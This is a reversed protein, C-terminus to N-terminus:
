VASGHIREANKGGRFYPLRRSATQSKAQHNESFAKLTEQLVESYNSYHEFISDFDDESEARMCRTEFSKKPVTIDAYLQNKSRLFNLEQNIVGRLVPCFMKRELGLNELRLVAEGASGAHLTAFVLHGTLAARLAAAASQEDRIEGIMIIDPDQRFIHNLAEAFGNREDVKVQTVGPIVYEPPDELSLIKLSGSYKKEIDVLISAVTTSKGSGTPGCVLILGNPMQSFLEIKELQVLNFGLSDLSLPVRSTDLLRIVVSEEGLYKEGVVAMTSVRLFFSNQNGYVFHGDQCRRKEIVNMGALLKVRQVLEAGKERQLEMLVELQGNVRLRVLNREIHIDTAKRLRAENLISDLLLVAAADKQTREVERAGSPMAGAKLDGAAAGIEDGASYLRSVLKRLQGRNGTVFDVAPIRRFIEPCDNLKRIMGLHNEFARKLRAKLIENQENEILFSICAGNQELVAVGNYLCYAPTLNFSFRNGFVRQFEPSKVAGGQRQNNTDCSISGDRLSGGNEGVTRNM